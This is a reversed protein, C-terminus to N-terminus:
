KIIEIRFTLYQVFVDTDSMYDEYANDLRIENINIDDLVGRKKDLIKKIKTAIEVSQRYSKSAVVMEVYAVESYNYRDKSSATQLSSRKYVVFPYTTGQDAVIPFVKNNIIANLEENGTLYTAIVKGIELSDM